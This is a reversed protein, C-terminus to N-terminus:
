IAGSPGAVGTRTRWGSVPLQRDGVRYSEVDIMRYRDRYEDFKEAFGDSTLDRWLWWGLNEANDVWIASYLLQGDIVYADVDIPLFGQDSFFDFLASFQTSTVDYYNAWELDELNQIWIGAYYTDSGLVYVEQDILRYDDARERQTAEFEALTMNRTQYWGRGDTNRQWVGGVRQVGDIEDVEIDVMMYGEGALDSFWDSFASSTFNRGSYWGVADPDLLSSPLAQIELDPPTDPEWASLPDLVQARAIGPVGPGLGAALNSLLAIVAILVIYRRRHKM